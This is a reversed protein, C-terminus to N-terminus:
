KIQTLLIVISNLTYTSLYVVLGNFRVTKSVNFDLFTGFIETRKVRSNCFVSLDIM